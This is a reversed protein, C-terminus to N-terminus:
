DERGDGHLFVSMEVAYGYTRRDSRESCMSGQLFSVNLVPIVHLSNRLHTFCLVFRGSKMQSSSYRISIVSNSSKARKRPHAPDSRGLSHGQALLHAQRLIDPHTRSKHPYQYPTLCLVTCSILRLRDHRSSLVRVSLPRRERM